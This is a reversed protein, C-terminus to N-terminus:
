ISIKETDNRSMIDQANAAIRRMIKIVDSESKGTKEKIEEVVPTM